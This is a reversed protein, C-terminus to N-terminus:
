SIPSFLRNERALYWGDTTIDVLFIPSSVGFGGDSNVNNSVNHSDLLNPFEGNHSAIGCPVNVETRTGPTTTPVEVNTSGNPGGACGLPLTEGITVTSARGVYVSRSPVLTDPLFEFRGRGGQDDDAAAAKHVFTGTALVVAASIILATLVLKKKV